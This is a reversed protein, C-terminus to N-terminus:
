SFLRTISDFDRSCHLCKNVCQWMECFLSNLTEHGITALFIYRLLLWTVYHRPIIRIVETKILDICILSYVSTIYSVCPLENVDHANNLHFICGLLFGCYKLWHRCLSLCHLIFIGVLGTVFTVSACSWSNLFRSTIVWCFVSMFIFCRDKGLLVHDAWTWTLVFFLYAMARFLAYEIDPISSLACLIM